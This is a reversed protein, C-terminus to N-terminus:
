SEKKRGNSYLCIRGSLKIPLYANLSPFTYVCRERRGITTSTYKGTGTVGADCWWETKANMFSLSRFFFEEPTTM